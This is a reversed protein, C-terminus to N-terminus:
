ARFKTTGTGAVMPSSCKVHCLRVLLGTLECDDDDNGNHNATAEIWQCHTKKKNMGAPSLSSTRPTAVNKIWWVCRILLVFTEGLQSITRNGDMSM